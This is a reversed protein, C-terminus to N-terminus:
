ICQTMEWQQLQRVGVEGERQPRLSGTCAAVDQVQQLGLISSGPSNDKNGEPVWVGTQAPPWLPTLGAICTTPAKCFHPHSYSSWVWGRASRTGM